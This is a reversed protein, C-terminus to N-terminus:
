ANENHQAAQKPSWGAGGWVACWSRLSAASLPGGAATGGAGDQGRASRVTRPQSEGHVTSCLQRVVQDLAGRGALELFQEVGDACAAVQV